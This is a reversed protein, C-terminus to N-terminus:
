YNNSDLKQKLQCKLAAAKVEIVQSNAIRSFTITENILRDVLAVQKKQKLANQASLFKLRPLYYMILKESCLNLGDNILQNSLKYNEHESYFQATFFLLTLMRLYHHHDDSTFDNQHEEIYSHIKEFYFSAQKIEQNRNSMVGLGLFALQTYITKHQEDLDNLIQSFNFLIDDQKGNTLTHIFGDLYCFQIKDSFNDIQNLNILSIEQIAHPYDEIMLNREIKDLSEKLHERTTMDEKFLDDITLGLKVCLKSLIPLSPIQKNNEFKSLTAQTCIGASLKTQSIKLAKRRNIFIDTKM